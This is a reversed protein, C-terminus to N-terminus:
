PLCLLSLFAHAIFSLCLHSWWSVLDLTEPQHQSAGFHFHPPMGMQGPIHQDLYTLKLIIHVIKM